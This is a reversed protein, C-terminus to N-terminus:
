KMDRYTVQHVPLGDTDVGTKETYVWIGGPQSSREYAVVSRVGPQGKLHRLAMVGCPGAGVVAVDM